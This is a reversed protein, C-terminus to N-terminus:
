SSTSVTSVFTAPEALCLAHIAGVQRVYDQTERYKPVGGYRRVSKPGANYAALVSQVNGDFESSLKLLLRAGGDVNDRPDFPDKVNLVTATEPQIAMLGMAGTTTITNPNFGSEFIVVATVLCPDVAYQDAVQRIIERISEVSLSANSARAPSRLLLSYATARDLVRSSFRHQYRDWKIPYKFSLYTGLVAGVGILALGTLGVIVPKWWSRVREPSM